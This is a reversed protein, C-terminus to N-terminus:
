VRFSSNNQISKGGTGGKATPALLYMHTLAEETKATEERKKPHAPSTGSLKSGAGPGTARLAAKTKSGKSSTMGM